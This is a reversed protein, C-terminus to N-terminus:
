DAEAPPAAAQRLAGLLLFATAAPYFPILTEAARPAVLGLFKFGIAVPTVVFLGLKLMTKFPLGVRNGFLRDAAMAAGVLILVLSLNTLAFWLFALPTGLALVMPVAVGRLKRLGASDLWFDLHQGKFEYTRSVGPSPRFIARDTTVLLGSPISDPLSTWAGTTDIVLIGGPEPQVFPQEGRVELRGHNVRLAPVTGADLRRNWDVLARGVAGSWQISTVLGLVLALLLWNVVAAPLPFHGAERYFRSSYLSRVFNQIPGGDAPPPEPISV